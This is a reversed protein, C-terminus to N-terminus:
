SGGIRDQLFGAGPLARPFPPSPAGLNVAADAVRIEGKWENALRANCHLVILFSESKHVRSSIGVQEKSAGGEGEEEEEGADTISKSRFQRIESLGAQRGAQRGAETVANCGLRGSHPLNLSPNPPVNPQPVRKGENIECKKRWGRIMLGAFFSPLLCNNTTANM